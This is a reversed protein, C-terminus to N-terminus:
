SGVAQGTGFFYESTGEAVDGCTGQSVTASLVEAQENEDFTMLFYVITGVTLGAVAGDAVNSINGSANLGNIWTVEVGPDGPIGSSSGEEDIINGKGIGGGLRSPSGTTPDYPFIFSTDLTNTSTFVPFLIVDGVSIDEGDFYTDTSALPYTTGISASAGNVCSVEASTEGAPTETVTAKAFNYAM